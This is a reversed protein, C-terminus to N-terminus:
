SQAKVCMSIRIPISEGHSGKLSLGLMVEEM